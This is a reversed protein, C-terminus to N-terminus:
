VFGIMNHMRYWLWNCFPYWNGRTLNFNKETETTAWNGFSVEFSFVVLYLLKDYLRPAVHVNCYQYMYISRPKNRLADGPWSHFHTHLIHNIVRLSFFFLGYLLGALGQYIFIQLGMFVFRSIRYFFFISIGNKGQDFGTQGRKRSPVLCWGWEWPRSGKWFPLCVNLFVFAFIM